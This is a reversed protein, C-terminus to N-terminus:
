CILLIALLEQLSYAVNLLTFLFVLIIFLILLRNLLSSLSILVVWCLCPSFKISADRCVGKTALVRHLFLVALAWPCFQTFLMAQKLKGHITPDHQNSSVEHLHHLGIEQELCIWNFFTTWSRMYNLEWHRWLLCNQLMDSYVWGTKVVKRTFTHILDLNRMNWSRNGRVREGYVRGRDERYM